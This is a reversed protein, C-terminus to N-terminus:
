SISIYYNNDNNNNIDRWCERMISSSLTTKVFSSKGVRNYLLSHYIKSPCKPTISFFWRELRDIVFVRELTRIPRRTLLHPLRHSFIQYETDIAVCLYCTSRIGQIYRASLILGSWFLVLLAVCVALLGCAKWWLRDDDVSRYYDVTTACVYTVGITIPTVTLLLLLDAILTRRESPSYRLWQM